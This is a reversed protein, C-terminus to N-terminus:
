AAKLLLRANEIREAIHTDITRLAKRLPPPAPPQDAALLPRLLRDHLKTYFIAFRLGDGTLRYRNKGPIRAILGNLRLRALDYSALATMLARLSKNTIGTVALMTTCLAGALAQVRPDGFRLAPARRGDETLTPRAIREFAPSALVCGQGVRETDLLRRNVARARAQLEDLHALRRHCRLDDPSNIVTEIRLARGDKM